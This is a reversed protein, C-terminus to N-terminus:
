FEYRVTDQAGGDPSFTREAYRTRAKERLLITSCRTGYRDNVIKSQELVSFLPEIATGLEASFRKKPEDVEPADLLTNGLGYVGPELRRPPGDRNSM